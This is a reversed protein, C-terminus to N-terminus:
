PHSEILSSPDFGRRKPQKGRQDEPIQGTGIVIVDYNQDNM